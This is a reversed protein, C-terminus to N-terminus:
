EELNNNISELLSEDDYFGWCSDVEEWEVHGCSDCKKGKELMYGWVDGSLDQNYIKLEQEMIKVLSAEDRDTIGIMNAQKETVVIWGVMGSDWREQPVGIHMVLGSHDYLTLPRIALIKEGCIDELWFKFSKEDNIETDEDDGSQYFEEIQHDGLNYRSHKCYMTTVNDDERSSHSDEDREVTLKYGESLIPNERAEEIQALTFKM